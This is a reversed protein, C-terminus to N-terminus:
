KRDDLWKKVWRSYLGIPPLPFNRVTSIKYLQIARIIDDRYDSYQPGFLEYFELFSGIIRNDEFFKRISYDVIQPRSNDQETKGISEKATKIDKEYLHLSFIHHHYTGISLDLAKSLLFHLLNFGLTNYLWGIYLDQSRTVVNMDLANQRIRFGFLDNCPVDKSKIDKLHDLRLVPIVARRTDPDQILQSLILPLGEYFARGYSGDHRNTLTNVYDEAHNIYKGRLDDNRGNLYYYLEVLHYVPNLKRIPNYFTYQNFASYEYSVNCIELTMEGKPKIPQGKSITESVLTDWADRINQFKYQNM